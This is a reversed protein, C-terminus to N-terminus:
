EIFLFFINRFEILMKTSVRCVTWYTCEEGRMGDFMVVKIKGESTLITNM